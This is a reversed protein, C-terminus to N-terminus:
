LAEPTDPTSPAVDMETCWALIRTRLIAMKVNDLQSPEFQFTKVRTDNTVPNKVAVTLIYM